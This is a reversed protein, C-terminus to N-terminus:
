RGATTIDATFGGLAVDEATTQVSLEITPSVDIGNDAIRLIQGYLDNTYNGADGTADAIRRIQGYM